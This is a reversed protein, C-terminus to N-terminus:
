IHILSLDEINGSHIAAYAEARRQHLLDTGERGESLVRVIENITRSTVKTFKSFLWSVEAPEGTKLNKERLLHQVENSVAQNNRAQDGFAWTSGWTSTTTNVVFLFLTPGILMWAGMAFRGTQVIQMMAIIAGIVYVLMGISGTLPGIFSQLILEQYYIGLTELVAGVYSGSSAVASDALNQVIDSM